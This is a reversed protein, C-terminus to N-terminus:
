RQGWLIDLPKLYCLTYAHEIRYEQIVQAIVMNKREGYDEAREQVSNIFLRGM